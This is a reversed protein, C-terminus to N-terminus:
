SVDPDGIFVREVPRVDNADVAEVLHLYAANAYLVRGAPDTVVIGDGSGEVVAKILPNGADKDAIRLIGAATAFLAFVGIMGLVALLGLIYTEAQNRNVLLLVIATAVLVAAVIVVLRVSGRRESRDIVTAAQGRSLDQTAM